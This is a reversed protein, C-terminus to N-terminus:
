AYCYECMQESITSSAQTPAVSLDRWLMARTATTVLTSHSSITAIHSFSLSFHPSHCALHHSNLGLYARIEPSSEFIAHRTTLRCM